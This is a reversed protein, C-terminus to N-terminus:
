REPILSAPLFMASCLSLGSAADVASDVARGEPIPSIRLANGSWARRYIGSLYKSSKGTNGSAFMQSSIPPM